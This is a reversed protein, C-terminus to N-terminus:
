GPPLCLNEVSFSRAKTINNGMRYWPTHWRAHAVWQCAGAPRLYMSWWASLIPLSLFNPNAHSLYGLICTRILITRYTDSYKRENCM